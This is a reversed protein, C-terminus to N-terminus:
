TAQYFSNYLRIHYDHLFKQRVNYWSVMQSDSFSTTDLKQFVQEAELFFGATTLLMAKNLLVDNKLSNDGMQVALNEQNELMEKAKDFQFAMYEEDTTLDLTKTEYIIKNGAICPKLSTTIPTLSLCM